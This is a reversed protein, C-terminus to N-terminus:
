NKVGKQNEIENTGERLEFIYQLLPTLILYGGFGISVLSFFILSIINFNTRIVDGYHFPFTFFTWLVLIGVLLYIIGIIMKIIWGM